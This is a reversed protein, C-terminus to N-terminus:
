LHGGDQTEWHVKPQAQQNLLCLPENIQSTDEVMVCGVEVIQPEKIPMDGGARNRCDTLTRSGGRRFSFAFM